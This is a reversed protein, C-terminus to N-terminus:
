IRRWMLCCLPALGRVLLTVRSKKEQIKGWCPNLVIKVCVERNTRDFCAAGPSTCPKWLWPATHSCLRWGCHFPPLVTSVVPLGCSGRQGKLSAGQSRWAGEMGLSLRALAFCVWLTLLGSCGQFSLFFKSVFCIM